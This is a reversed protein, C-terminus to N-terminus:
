PAEEVVPAGNAVAASLAENGLRRLMFAEAARLADQRHSFRERYLVAEAGTWVEAVYGGDQHYVDYYLKGRNM